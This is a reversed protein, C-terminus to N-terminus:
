RRLEEMDSIMEKLKKFMNGYILNMDLQYIPKAFVGMLTAFISMGILWYLPVADVMQLDPIKEQAKSIFLKGVTSYCIGIAVTLTLVPYLFRYITTFFDIVGKLWTDFAVLYEYSSQSQDIHKTKDLEKKGLYAVLGLELFLLFGVLPIEIFFSGVFLLVAAVMIIQLNLRFGKIFQEVFLMSKRNYLNVVKPTAITAEKIFGEKWINEISNEM